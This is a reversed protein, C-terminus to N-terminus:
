NKGNLMREFDEQYTINKLSPSENNYFHVSFDDGDLQAYILATYVKTVTGKLKGEWLIRDGVKFNM